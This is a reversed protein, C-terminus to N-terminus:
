QLSTKREMGDHDTSVIGRAGLHYRQPDKQFPSWNGRESCRRWQVGQPQVGQHDVHHGISCNWLVVGSYLVAQVPVAPAAGTHVCCGKACSLSLLLTCTMGTICLWADIGSKCIEQALTCKCSSAMCSSASRSHMPSAAQQLAAAARRISLAMCM